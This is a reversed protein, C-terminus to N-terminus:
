PESYLKLATGASEEIGEVLLKLMDSDEMEQAIGAAAAPLKEAQSLIRGFVLDRDLKWESTAKEWNAPGIRYRKYEGGIKMALKTKRNARQREYPLFSSIDYLPALRVQSGNLLFSYNKAHADTGAILWNFIMADLLRLADERPQSSFDRILTFIEAATPGGDKQYKDEPRRALAQCSDEQHIRVM